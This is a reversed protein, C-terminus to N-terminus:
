IKGLGDFIKGLLERPINPYVKGDLLKFELSELHPITLRSWDKIPIGFSEGILCRLVVNHTVVVATGFKQLILEGMFNQLRSNVDSTNEGGDPFHPDQGESWSKIIEPHHEKLKEFTLGEASGYDIERLREDTFFRSYPAIAKITEKCRRSDSCYLNEIEIESLLPTKGDLIGPDRGQGLFTGDNLSTKAHRIFYVTKASQWSCIFAKQFDNVFSRVWELTWKPFVTNRLKKLKSLERFNKVHKLTNGGLLINIGKALENESYICNKNKKLKLGNLLLNRVRHYAYEGQHRSDLIKNLRTESIKGRGFDYNRISIKGTSLDEIYNELGRRAELFDRPQLRGVPFIESIRTGVFVESREWDHCTFPSLLVHKRHGQIDYVMLHLVLLEPKDFKLPGFSTNIKLSFGKLGCIEPDLSHAKLICQNFIDKNLQKCVVIIDIDSIGTLDDSDIFSGVLTVSYVGPISSLRKFIAEQLLRKIENEKVSIRLSWSDTPM